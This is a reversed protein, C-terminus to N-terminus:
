RGAFLSRPWDPPLSALFTASREAHAVLRVDSVMVM